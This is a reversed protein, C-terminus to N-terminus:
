ATFRLVVGYRDALEDEDLAPAEEMEIPEIELHRPERLDVRRSACEVEDESFFGLGHGREADHDAFLAEEDTLEDDESYGPRPRSRLRTAFLVAERVFGRLALHAAPM